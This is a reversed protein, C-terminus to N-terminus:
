QEQPRSINSARATNRIFNDSVLVKEHNRKLDVKLNLGLYYILIHQEM